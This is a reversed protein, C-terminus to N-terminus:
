GRIMDNAPLVFMKRCHVLVILPFVYAHTKLLTSMQTDPYRDAQREIDTDRQRETERERVRKTQRDTQTNTHTNMAKSFLHLMTKIDRLHPVLM